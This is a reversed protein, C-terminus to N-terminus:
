HASAPVVTLSIGSADSRSSYVRQIAARYDERKARYINPVFTQPNVDYAPFWTSQIQVMIRHGELFVHDHDGLPITWKMPVNPKLPRPYRFSALYRGRRIEMGIPLEYGNLSARYSSSSLQMRDAYSQYNEPYVDILKVVFDSDTGSTAAFLVATVPGTITISHTLPASVYTLVDPRHGVFRQDAVEWTAWESDTPIPTIPAIPRRAYPVPDSPDSVYQRYAARGQRNRPADFSLGGNAHLYLYEQQANEPPWSRYRHWTNSGTQFSDVKWGPRTGTGHLYYRFFPAEIKERFERATDQGLPIRGISNGDQDVAWAGHNWPGAVMLDVDAPSGQAIQRFIAWSGRPDEQDWYGAVNLVPVTVRQLRRVWARETWYRDYDPHNVLDNWFSLSGHLYERNVNSLPGLGLYWEYTDWANFAFKSNKERDAQEMVAYEFAYSLRLAGYHHFDDNMWEDASSAQESVAKLSRPPDILGLAATMGAYSVGWLGVRGNNDPVHKVLWRISDCADTVDNVRQPSNPGVVPALSFIGQSKFRGRVNQLVFIYGDRALAAMDRPITTPARDPVGYPSRKLLIPLPAAQHVPALIVTQLRIGDRMPVMVEQYTFQADAPIGPRGDAWSRTGAFAPSLIVVLCVRFKAHM